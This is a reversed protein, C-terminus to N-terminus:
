TWDAWGDKLYLQNVNTPGEAGLIYGSVCEEFKIKPQTAYFSDFEPNLAEKLSQVEGGPHIEGWPHTCSRAKCSKLVMLLADLRSQVELIPRHLIFPPHNLPGRLLNSM